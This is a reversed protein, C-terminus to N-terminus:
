AAQRPAHTSVGRLVRLIYDAAKASAGPQGVQEKLRRLAAVRKRRADPVTLWEVVHAALDASRDAFTLYEPFLVRDADPQRPDYPSLDRPYLEDANLLNV